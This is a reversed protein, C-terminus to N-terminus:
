SDAPPASAWPSTAGPIHSRKRAPRSCSAAIPPFVGPGTSSRCGPCAAIPVPRHDGHKGNNGPHQSDYSGRCRCPSSSIAARRGSPAKRSLFKARSIGPCCCCTIRNKRSSGSRRTSPSRRGRCSCVRNTSTGTSSSSWFNRDSARRLQDPHRGQRCRRLRRYAKGQIESGELM